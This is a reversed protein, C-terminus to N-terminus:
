FVDALGDVLARVLATIGPLKTEIPLRDVAVM